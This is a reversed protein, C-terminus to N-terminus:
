YIVKMSGQKKYNNYFNRVFLNKEMIEMTKETKMLHSNIFNKISPM